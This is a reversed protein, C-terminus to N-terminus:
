TASGIARCVLVLSPCPRVVGSPWRPSRSAGNSGAPLRDLLQQALRLEENGSARRARIEALDVSFAAPPGLLEVALSPPM